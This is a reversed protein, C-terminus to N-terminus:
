VKGLRKTETTAMIKSFVLEYHNIIIQFIGLVQLDHSVLWKDFLTYMCTVNWYCSFSPEIM